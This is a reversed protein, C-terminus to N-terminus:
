CRRVKPMQVLANMVPVLMGGDDFRSVVDGSGCRPCRSVGTELEWMGTGTKIWPGKCTSHTTEGCVGCLTEVVSNNARM